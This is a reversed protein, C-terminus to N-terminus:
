AAQEARNFSGFVDLLTAISETRTSFSTVFRVQQHNKGKPSAYFGIGCAKLHDVFSNPLTIFVLNSDVPYDTKLGFAEALGQVLFQAQENAHAANNLWLDNDLYALLQASLYRMKSTIHGARKAQFEFNQALSENFFVIAEANMAGNKTAGLTLVDVGRVLDAPDCELASVANAFRAGDMHVFLDHQQAVAVLGALEDVTYVTGADTTQTVSLCKIQSRHLCGQGSNQIEVRLLDPSIKGEEGGVPLVKAGGTFFEPAGCEMTHIHASKHALVAQWGQVCAALSLANAATGSIVPYVFAPRQFMRSFVSNLSQSMPDQGYPLVTEVENAQGLAALIQASVGAINDSTFDM